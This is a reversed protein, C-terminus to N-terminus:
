SSRYFNGIQEVVYDQQAQTMLPFVPLALTEDAAREAHPFAGKRKKLEAFCPQLHLPISYYVECGVGREKLFAALEDRRQARIVYHHYVMMQGPREFPPTIWDELGADSFLTAYRRAHSRRAATWEELHSLKVTLVAAQLADLRSNYGIEGHHYRDIMGHNRLRRVREEIAPDTTLVMGGDGYGGLNKTPFFSLCGVRGMAGAGLGDCTAGIAQAADEIVEIGAERALRLLQDMQACHGFLHVPLIARVRASPGKGGRSELCAAVAKPDITYTQPEIDAFIPTAGVHVIASASAIFTYPSTIVGDGPGIGLARLALILADTGSAVGVGALFTAGAGRKSRAQIWESVAAEYSEVIEGMVFQQSLLVRDLAARIAPEITQYEGKLDILPVKM